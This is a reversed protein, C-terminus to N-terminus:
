WVLRGGKNTLRRRTTRRRHSLSAVDSFEISQEEM